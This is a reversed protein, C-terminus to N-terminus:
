CGGANPPSNGAPSRTVGSPLPMAQMKQGLSGPTSCDGLGYSGTPDPLMLGVVAAAEVGFHTCNYNYLRYNYSAHFNIYSLLNALDTPSLEKTVRLTYPDQSNDGIISPGDGAYSKESTPYFGLVRTINNQTISIFTHGVDPKVINGNWADSKGPIPQRVYISFTAGQNATFCKLYERLNSVPKEPPLVLVTTPTIV